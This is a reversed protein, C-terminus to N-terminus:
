QYRITHHTTYPTANITWGDGHFREGPSHSHGAQEANLSLSLSVQQDHLRDTINLSGCSSFFGGAGETM